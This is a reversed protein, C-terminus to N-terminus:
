TPKLSPDQIELQVKECVLVLTDIAPDSCDRIDEGVEADLKCRWM